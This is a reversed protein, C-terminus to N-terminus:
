QAPGFESIRKGPYVTFIAEATHPCRLNQWELINSGVRAEDFELRHYIARSARAGDICQLFKLSRSTAFGLLDGIGPPCM